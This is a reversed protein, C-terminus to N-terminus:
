KDLEGSNPLHWISKLKLPVIMTTTKKIGPLKGIIETVFQYLEENTRANVEISVDKDGLSCAVYAVCDFKALARAVQLVLSPEVELNIDAIVLYGLSKPNVEACIKIVGKEILRRIRNRVARETISGIQRAIESSPMRGDKQLLQVIMRDLQDIKETMLM